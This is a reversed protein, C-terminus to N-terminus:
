KGKTSATKKAARPKAAPAAPAPDTTATSVAPVPTSPMNVVGEVDILEGAYVHPAARNISLMMSTGVGLNRMGAIRRGAKSTVIFKHM